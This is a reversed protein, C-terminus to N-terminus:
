WGTWFWLGLCALPVALVVGLIGAMILQETQGGERPLRSGILGGVLAAPSVLGIVILQIIPLSPGVGYYREPRLIAPFIVPWFLSTGFTAVVGALWGAIAFRLHGRLLAIM